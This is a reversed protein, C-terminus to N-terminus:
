RAGSAVNEGNALVLDLDLEERLAPVGREVAELGANGFVDGLFLIRM